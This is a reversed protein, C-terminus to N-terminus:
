RASKVLSQLRQAIHRASLGTRERLDQRTRGCDTCFGTLGTMAFATGQGNGALVEAVAGGLGGYVSHEELTLIAGTDRACELICDRDIPKVTHMNIVRVDMGLQAQLLEAAELAETLIGGSAIISADRGQRLLTARGPTFVYGPEYLEKEGNGEVRLYAPGELAYMAKVALGAELPSSATMVVMDPLSRLLTLDETGHHTLGMSYAALGTSSAVLKVPLRAACVDNRIFEYARMVLFNTRTYVFPIKGCSALGAASAVMNAEAIGYEIARTPMEVAMRALAGERSDATLALVEAHERALDYIAQTAHTRM